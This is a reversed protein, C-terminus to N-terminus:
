IAKFFYKCKYSQQVPAEQEVRQKGANFSFKILNKFPQASQGAVKASMCRRSSNFTSNLYAFQRNTANIKETNNVTPQKPTEVPKEATPKYAAVNSMFLGKAKAVQQPALQPQKCTTQVTTNSVQSVELKMNPLKRCQFCKVSKKCIFTRRKVYKDFELEFPWTQSQLCTPSLRFPHYYDDEALANSKLARNNAIIKSAFNDPNLLSSMSIAKENSPNPKNANVVIVNNATKPRNLKLSKQRQPLEALQQESNTMSAAATSPRQQQVQQLNGNSNVRRLKSKKYLTEQRITHLVYKKKVMMRKLLNYMDMESNNDPELDNDNNLKNTRPMPTPVHHRIFHDATYEINDYKNLVLRFNEDIVDPYFFEVKEDDDLDEFMETKTSNSKSDDHSQKPEDKNIPDLQNCIHKVFQEDGNNSDAESCNDDNYHNTHGAPAYNTGIIIRQDEYDDLDNAMDNDNSLSLCENDEIEDYEDLDNIETIDEYNEVVVTQNPPKQDAEKKKNSIKKNIGNSLAAILESTLSDIHKGYLLKIKSENKTERPEAAGKAKAPPPVPSKKAKRSSFNISKSKMAAADSTELETKNSLAKNQPILSESKYRDNIIASLNKNFYDLGNSDLGAVPPPAGPRVVSNRSDFGFKFTDDDEIAYTSAINLLKPKNITLPTVATAQAKPKLKYISNAESQQDSRIGSKFKLNVPRKLINLNRVDSPKSEPVMQFFQSLSSSANGSLKDNFEQENFSFQNRIIKLHIKLDVIKKETITM